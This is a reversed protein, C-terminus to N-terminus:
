ALVRDEAVNAAGHLDISRAIIDRCYSTCSQTVSREVGSNAKWHSLLKHDAM